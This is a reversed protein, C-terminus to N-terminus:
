AASHVEANLGALAARCDDACERCMQACRRCHPNDHQACEAGCRECAEICAALMTRILQRDHGTRRMAVRAAANCVDSCDLNLRICQSMDMGGTNGGAGLKMEAICADACSNCIAACLMARRVAVGLSDDYDPGVQPHESIMAEISM